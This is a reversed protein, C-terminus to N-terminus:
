LSEVPGYSLQFLMRNADPLDGTRIRSAGDDRSNSAIASRALRRLRERIRDPRASQEESANSPSPTRPARRRTRPSPHLLLSRDHLRIRRAWDITAATYRKTARVRGATLSHSCCKVAIVADDSEAHKVQVRELRGGREIVLDYDCDEGYPIALKCGRRRLIRGDARRARGKGEADARPHHGNLCCRLRPM